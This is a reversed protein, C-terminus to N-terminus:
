QRSTNNKKKQDLFKYDWSYYYKQYCNYYKNDSNIKQKQFNSGGLFAITAAIVANELQSTLQKTKQKAEKSQIISQIEKITKDRTKLM